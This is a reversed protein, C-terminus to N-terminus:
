SELFCYLLLEGLEGKNAIYNLFKERAKKSLHAPKHKYEDRVNRSLSFEILPDILSDQLYNYDFMNSNIKLMFLNLKNKGYEDITVENLKDFSNLFDFDTLSLEM